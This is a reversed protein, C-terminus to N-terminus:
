LLMWGGDVRLNVGNMSPNELLFVVAGVIDQMAVLRGTPTRALVRELAETKESWFPSDGVIGPHVANVRVPALEIAFSRVMATVAGNVATVTASGPYPRDKALGGFLCISSEDGLKPALAHVAETYGVLKLTVLSTAKGPDYDRVTNQDRAIACIVLHDVPGLEALRGAIEDVRTLDLGIGRAGIEEASAKALEADRGSIVVDRGREAYHRAIQRGIGGTGGVVVVLGSDPM